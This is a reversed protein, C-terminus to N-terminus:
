GADGAVGAHGAVAQHWRQCLDADSVDLAHSGTKESVGSVGFRGLVQLLGAM